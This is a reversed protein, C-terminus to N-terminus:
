VGERIIEALQDRLKLIDNRDKAMGLATTIIELEVRDVTIQESKPINLSKLPYEKEEEETMFSYNINTM